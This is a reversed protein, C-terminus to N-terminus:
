EKVHIKIEESYIGIKKGNPKYCFLAGASLNYNVAEEIVFQQTKQMASGNKITGNVWIWFPGGDDFIGFGARINEDVLIIGILKDEVRGGKYSPPLSFKVDKGSINKLTATATITDGVQVETKDVELTLTLDGENYRGTCAFLVWAVVCLLVVLAIIRIALHKKM